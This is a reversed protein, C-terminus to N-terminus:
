RWHRHFSSHGLGGNNNAPLLPLPSTVSLSVDKEEEEIMGPVWSPECMRVEVM